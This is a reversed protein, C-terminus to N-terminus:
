IAINEVFIAMIISADHDLADDYRGDSSNADKGDSGSGDPSSDHHCAPLECHDAAEDEHRSDSNEAFDSLILFSVRRPVHKNVQCAASPNNGSCKNPDDRRSEDRLMEEFM